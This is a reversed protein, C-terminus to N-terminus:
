FIKGLYMKWTRDNKQTEVNPLNYKSTKELTGSPKMFQIGGQWGGKTEFGVGVFPTTQTGESHKKSEAGVSVKAAVNETVKALLDGQGLASLFSAKPISALRAGAEGSIRMQCRSGLEYNKQGGIFAGVFAGWKDKGEGVNTYTPVLGNHIGNILNHFGEQQNSAQAWGWKGKSSVNVFGAEGKWYMTKGENMNDVMLRFINVNEFNQTTHVIGDKDTYTKSADEKTYLSTEYSGTVNYIRGDFDKQTTIQISTSHTDGLDDGQRRGYRSALGLMSYNDNRWSVLIQVPRHPEPDPQIFQKLETPVKDYSDYQMMFVSYDKQDDPTGYCSMTQQGAPTVISRCRGPKNYNNFSTMGSVFYDANLATQAEAAQAKDFDPNEAAFTPLSISFLLTFLM